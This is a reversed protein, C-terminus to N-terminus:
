PGPLQSDMTPMTSPQQTMTEDSNSGMSRKRRLSVSVRATTPMVMACM